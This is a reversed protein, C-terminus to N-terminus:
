TRLLELLLGRFWKSAPDADAHAHWYLFLEMPPIQVPFPLMQNDARANSLEAQGLTMTALLDSERVIECAAAHQQCRLRIRRSMGLRGLAIDEYGGGRRRGTVLIHELALYTELDLGGQVTPHGARALVVLPESTLRERRVEASVPLAVDIAADLEGSQLDDELDRREIRVAAVDINPAERTLRGLLEPLFAAEQSDRMAIMFARESSAPDFQGARSLTQELSGLSQRIAVALTRALPTPIMETGRREFLPDGFLERLRGLAHSVAPQSLHLRKSAPTIGGERYIADFVTFLNLDIRSLQM